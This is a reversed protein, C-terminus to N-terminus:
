LSARSRPVDFGEAQNVLLPLFGAYCLAASSGATWAGQSGIELSPRTAEVAQTEKVAQTVEM